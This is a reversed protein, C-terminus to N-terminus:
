TLVNETSEKPKRRSIMGGKKGVVSAREPGTMGDKGKVDSAFGGNGSRSGGIRGIEKYFNPNRALNRKAAKQGGSVTGSM